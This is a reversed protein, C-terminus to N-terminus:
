VYFHNVQQYIGSEFSLSHITITIIIVIKLNTIVSTQLERVFQGRSVCALTRCVTESLRHLLAPVEASQFLHTKLVFTRNPKHSYIFGYEGFIRYRCLFLVACACAYICRDREDCWWEEGFQLLPCFELDNTTCCTGVGARRWRCLLLSSFLSLRHKHAVPWTCFIVIIVIFIILIVDAAYQVPSVLM